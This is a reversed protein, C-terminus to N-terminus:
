ASSSVTTAALTFSLGTSAYASNIVSIQNAISTASLYGGSTSNSSYIVHFYVQPCHDRNALPRLTM